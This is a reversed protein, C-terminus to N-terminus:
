EAGSSPDVEIKGATVYREFEADYEKALEVNGDDRYARALAGAVLADHYTEPISPVTAAVLAAPATMHVVTIDQNAVPAPLVTLRNGVQQYWVPTSPQDVMFQVRRWPVDAPQPALPKTGAFVGIVGGQLAATSLAISRTGGLVTVVADATLSPWRTTQVFERYAANIYSLWEAESRVINSIDSFRQECVDRIAAADM